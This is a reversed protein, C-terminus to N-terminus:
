RQSRASPTTTEASMRRELERELVRLRGIVLDRGAGSAIRENLDEVDKRDFGAALGRNFAARTPSWMRADIRDLEDRVSTLRRRLEEIPVQAVGAAELERMQARAERLRHATETTPEDEHDSRVRALDRLTSEFRPDTTGM